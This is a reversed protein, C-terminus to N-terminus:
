SMRSLGWHFSICKEVNKIWHWIRRGGVLLEATEESISLPKRYRSHRLVKIVAILM